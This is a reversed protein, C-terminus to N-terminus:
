TAHAKGNASMADQFPQSLRVFYRIVSGHDLVPDHISSMCDAASKLCKQVNTQGWRLIHNTYDDLVLYVSDNVDHGVDSRTCYLAPMAFTAFKPTGLPAMPKM